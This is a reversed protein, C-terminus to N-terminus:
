HGFEETPVNQPACDWEVTQPMVIGLTAVTILAFGLNTKVRVRSMAKHPCTPRVPTPQVLGWALAWETTRCDTCVGHASDGDDAAWVHLTACAPLMLYLALTALPLALRHLLPRRPTSM